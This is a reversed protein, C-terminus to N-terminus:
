ELIKFKDHGLVLRLTSGNDWKVSVIGMGDVFSVTGRDGKRLSTYEDDTYILEVRQGEKPSPAKNKAKENEM